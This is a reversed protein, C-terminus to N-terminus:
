LRLNSQMKEFVRDTGRLVCAEDRNYFCDTLTTCPFLRQKSQCGYLIRFHVVHASQPIKPHTRLIALSSQLSRSTDSRGDTQGCPVVRSASFPNDTFKINSYKEFIKRSFKLKILAQCSYVNKKHFGIRTLSTESMEECFSFNKSCLNYLFDICM